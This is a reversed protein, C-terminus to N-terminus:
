GLDLPHNRAGNLWYLRHCVTICPTSAGCCPIERTALSAVLVAAARCDTALVLQALLPWSTPWITSGFSKSLAGAAAVGLAQV